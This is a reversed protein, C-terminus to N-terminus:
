LEVIDDFLESDARIKESSGITARFSNEALSKLLPVYARMVGPETDIVQELIQRRYEPTIGCLYENRATLGSAAPTRHPSLSGYTGIILQDLKERSLDLEEVADHNNEQNAERRQLVSDRHRCSERQM